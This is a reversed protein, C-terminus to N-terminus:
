IRHLTKKHPYSTEHTNLLSPPIHTRNDIKQWDILRFIAMLASVHPQYRHLLCDMHLWWVTTNSLQNIWNYNIFVCRPHRVTRCDSSKSSKYLGTQTEFGESFKRWKLTINVHNIRVPSKIDAHISIQVIREAHINLPWSQNVYFQVAETFLTKCQM